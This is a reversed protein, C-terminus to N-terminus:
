GKGQTHQLDRVQGTGVEFYNYDVHISSVANGVPPKKPESLAEAPPPAAAVVANVEKVQAKQEEAAQRAAQLCLVVAPVFDSM